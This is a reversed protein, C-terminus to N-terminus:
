ALAMAALAYLMMTTRVTQRAPRPDLTPSTFRIDGETSVTRVCSRRCSSPGAAHRASAPSRNPQPKHPWDSASTPRLRRNVSRPGFPPSRKARETSNPVDLAVPFDPTDPRLRGEARGADPDRHRGHYGSISCAERTQGTRRIVMGPPDPRDRARNKFMMTAPIFRKDAQLSDVQARAAALERSLADARTRIASLINRVETNRAEDSAANTAAARSLRDRLVDLERRAADAKDGSQRLATELAEVRASAASAKDDSQRLATELVAVRASAAENRGISATSAEAETDKVIGSLFKELSPDRSKEFILSAATGTEIAEQLLTDIRGQDNQRIAALLQRMLGKSADSALLPELLVSWYKVQEGPELTQLTTAPAAMGDSPGPVVAGAGAGQAAEQAHGVPSLLTLGSILLASLIPNHRFNMMPEPEAHRLPGMVPSRGLLSSTRKGNRWGAVEPPGRLTQPVEPIGRKDGSGVM